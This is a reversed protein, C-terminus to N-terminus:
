KRRAESLRDIVWVLAHADGDGRINAILVVNERQWHYSRPNFHIRPRFPMRVHQLAYHLTRASAARPCEELPLFCVSLATGPFSILSLNWATPLPSAITSTTSTSTIGTPGSLGLPIPEPDVLGSHFSASSETHDENLISSSSASSPRRGNLDQPDFTNYWKRYGPRRELLDVNFDIVPVLPRFITHQPTAITILEGNHVKKPTRFPPAIVRRM